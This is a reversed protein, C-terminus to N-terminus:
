TTSSTATSNTVTITANAVTTTVTSQTITVNSGTGTVTQTITSDAVTQTVYVTITQNYQPQTVTVTVVQPALPVTQNTLQSTTVNNLAQMAVTTVNNTSSTTTNQLQTSNQTMIPNAMTSVSENSYQTLTANNNPMQIGVTTVNSSNVSPGIPNQPLTSNQALTNTMSPITQNASQVMTMNNLTQTANAAETNNNVSSTMNELITSNQTLVTNALPTYSANSANSNMTANVIMSNGQEDNMTIDGDLGLYFQTTLTCSPAPFTLSNGQMNGNLVLQHDGVNSSTNAVIWVAGQNANGQGDFVTYSASGIQLSGTLNQINFESDGTRQVGGALNLTASTSPGTGNGTDFPIAQGSLNITTTGLQGQQDALAITPLLSFLSAFLLLLVIAYKTKLSSNM